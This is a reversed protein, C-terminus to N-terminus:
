CNKQNREEVNLGGFVDKLLMAQLILKANQRMDRFILPLVISTCIETILSALAAGTAGMIPILCFNLIVNIAAACIYMYKLYKQKNECVIWANRAVGLFSFATYWTVVRLPGVAGAFKAGYLINIIINGFLTFCVSVAMSVYFVIAYLQRNKREFGIKDTKHLNMITPYVSDIIASLVFTWM